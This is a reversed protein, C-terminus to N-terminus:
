RARPRRPGVIVGVPGPYDAMGSAIRVESVNGNAMGVLMGASPQADAVIWITYTSGVKAPEGRMVATRNLNKVLLCETVYAIAGEVSDDSFLVQPAKPIRAYEIAQVATHLTPTAIVHFM